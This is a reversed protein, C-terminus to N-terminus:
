PCYNSFQVRNRQRVKPPASWIGTSNFQIATVRVADGVVSHHRPRREFEAAAGLVHLLFRSTPNQHDTDLRQTVAIFRVGSSELTQINKLCDVLLRGFRDLKWVLVCHFKGAAADAMLRALWPRRSQAGSMVDEYLEAVNWGHQAAFNELERLAVQVASAAAPDPQRLNPNHGVDCCGPREPRGFGPGPMTRETGIRLSLSRRAWSSKHFLISCTKLKPHTYTSSFTTALSPISGGVGAKEPCSVSV